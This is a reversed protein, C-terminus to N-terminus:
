FKKYKLAYKQLNSLYNPVSYALISKRMSSPIVSNTDETYICSVTCIKPDKTNQKIVTFSYSFDVDTPTDQVIDVSTKVIQKFYGGWSSGNSSAESKAGVQRKKDFKESISFICYYSADQLKFAKWKSIYRYKRSALPKPYATVSEVIDLSLKPHLELQNMMKCNTDWVQRKRTDRELLSQCIQSAHVDTFQKTFYYGTLTKDSNLVDCSFLNFSDDEPSSIDIWRSPKM